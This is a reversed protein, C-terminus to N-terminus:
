YDSDPRKEIWSQIGDLSLVTNRLEVLNPYNKIIDENLVGNCYDLLAVFYLDAWTLQFQFYVLTYLLM